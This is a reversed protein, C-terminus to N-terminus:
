HDGIYRAMGHIHRILISFKVLVKYSFIARCKFLPLIKGLLRIRQSLFAPTRHQPTEGYHFGWTDDLSQRLRQARNRCASASEYVAHDSRAPLKGVRFVTPDDSWALSAEMIGWIM